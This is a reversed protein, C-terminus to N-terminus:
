YKVKANDKRRKDFIQQKGMPQQHLGKNKNGIQPIFNTNKKRNGNNSKNAM